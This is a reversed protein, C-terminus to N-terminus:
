STTSISFPKGEVLLTLINDKHEFKELHRLTIYVSEDNVQNKILIAKIDEINFNDLINYYTSGNVVDISIVKMSSVFLGEGVEKTNIPNKYIERLKEIFEKRLNNM